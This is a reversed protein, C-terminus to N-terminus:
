LHPGIQLFGHAGYPGQGCYARYSFICFSRYRADCLFVSIKLYIHSLCYTIGQPCLFFPATWETEPIIPPPFAKM